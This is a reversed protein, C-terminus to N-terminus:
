GLRKSTHLTAATNVIQWEPWNQRTGLIVAFATLTAPRIMRLDYSLVGSQHLLLVPHGTTVLNFWVIVLPM